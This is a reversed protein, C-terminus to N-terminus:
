LNAFTFEGALPLSGRVRQPCCRLPWARGCGPFDGVWPCVCGAATPPHPGCVVGPRSLAHVRLPVPTVPGALGRSDGRLAKVWSMLDRWWRWLARSLRVAGRADGRHARARM